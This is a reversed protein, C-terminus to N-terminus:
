IGSEHDTEGKTGANKEEAGCFEEARVAASDFLDNGAHLRAYKVMDASAMFKALFRRDKEHLPSEDKELERLFEATTQREARISFESEIYHRVIDGLQALAADLPVRNEKVNRRLERIQDAATIRVPQVQKKRFFLNRMAYLVIGLILAGAAVAFLVFLPTKEPPPIYEGALALTQDQQEPATVRLEPLDFTFQDRSFVVTLEGPQLTGDRYAQIVFVVEWVNAGWDYHGLEFAPESVTQIGATEVKYRAQEPSQDWPVRFSVRLMVTQGLLVDGPALHKELVTVPMPKEASSLSRYKWYAAGCFLVAALLIVSPVGYLIWKKM